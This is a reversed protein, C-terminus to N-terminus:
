YSSVGKSELIRRQTDKKMKKFDAQIQKNAKYVDSDKIRQEEYYGESNLIREVGKEDISDPTASVGIGFIRALDRENYEDDKFYDWMGLFPDTNMGLGLGLANGVANKYEGKNTQRVIRSIKDFLPSIVNRRKKSAEYPSLGGAIDALYGISTGILPFATEMMQVPLVYRTVLEHLAEESDEEDGFGIRLFNGAMFFASNVISGQIFFKRWDKNPAKWIKGDTKVMIENMSQIMQNMQLFATSAFMTVGRMLINKSAQMMNMDQPRRSQQTENYDNFKELAKAKSMGNAIDRNYNAAYGLVGLTDGLRTFFGGWEQARKMTKGSFENAMFGELAAIDKTELRARFGPSIDKFKNITKVITFPNMVKALDFAFMLADKATGSKGDKNYKYDTFAAFMSSAQKLAQIPKFGLAALSYYSFLKREWSKTFTLENVANPNVAYNMLQNLLVDTGSLKLAANVAKDSFITNIEKVGAAYAKFKEMDKFHSNLEGFFGIEKGDRGLIKVEGSQDTRQKLGSAYQASFAKAFDGDLIAKNINARQSNTTDTKTPFYNEQKDLSVFNIDEYINNVSEFYSDSLYEVTRDVFEKVKPDLIEEIQEFTKETFKFDGLNNELMKRRQTPNKSLAYIRMIAPGFLDLTKGNAMDLTHLDKVNDLEQIGEMGKDFGFIENAVENMHDVQTHYGGLAADFMRNLNRYVKNEFFRNKTTDMLRMLTGINAVRNKAAELVMMAPNKRMKGFMAMGHDYTAKIRAYKNGKGKEQMIRKHLSPFEKGMQNETKLVPRAVSLEYNVSGDKNITHNLQFTKGDYEVETGQPAISESNPSSEYTALVDDFYTFEEESTAKTFTENDTFVTDGYSSEIEESAEEKLIRNEKARELLKGALSQKSAKEISSYKDLLAKTEDLSLKDINKITEYAGYLNVLTREDVTLDNGQELNNIATELEPRIGGGQEPSLFLKDELKQKAVQDNTIYAQLVKHAQKFFSIADADVRGKSKVKGSSDV